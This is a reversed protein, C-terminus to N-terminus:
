SKKAALEQTRKKTHKTPESDQPNDPWLHKPYRGKMEKKVEVYPGAWFSALDQTLALPRRAPSLLEMTVTLEGNAVKPSAALGLAEQLRVSLLARGADDYRIPARSGTAMKWSVPLYNDLNTLLPWPLAGHLMALVDLKALQAVSNINILYPALWTDLSAM